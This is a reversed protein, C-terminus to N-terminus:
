EWAPSVALSDLSNWVLPHLVGRRLASVNLLLLNEPSTSKSSPTKSLRTQFSRSLSGSDQTCMSHIRTIAIPM